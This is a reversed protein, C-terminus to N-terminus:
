LSIPNGKYFDLIKTKFIFEYKASLLDAQAKTLRTKATTYELSNVLGVNFRETSYRFAEQLADVNKETAKYKKLSGVADAYAQQIDKFLLNKEQELILKANELSIYSNSISTKVQLGNFIPVSMSLGINFSANARMQDMFPDNSFGFPPTGLYRRSGSSYSSGLSLRPSRAGKAVLMGKEASSVKLLASKIQPMVNQAHSFIDMPSDVPFTEEFNSLNPQLISFGETSKLDLLQTLTLYALDLQNQANVVQLEDSALQAEIDFLNGQPLSGANVFQQTKELQLETLTKQSKAVELLERSYLIQLYAAAINLSVSNKLKEVDSTSAL